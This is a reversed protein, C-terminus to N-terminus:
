PSGVMPTLLGHTQLFQKAVAAPSQAAAAVAWNLQRMAGTSLAADVREITTAFAPGEKALASTSVVPVVNGWGFIGRRDVLLRYDGTALQGDTSNVYAAQVRGDNLATYQDGVSLSRFTPSIGYVSALTPVGPAALRFQQAGGITLPIDLHVLDGITRLHNDAAVGVTVAIADTDSFPTPDLLTLGHTRAWRRAARVALRLSPLRHRYGAIQSNFVDLYEPYMTLAGTLLAQQTVETPGINQDIDVTFGQAQLAQVYLQGLVFQEVYNKDGIMVTPRGAGPLVVSTTTTTTATTASAATASPANASRTASTSRQRPPPRAPPPHSQSSGCGGALLALLAGLGM